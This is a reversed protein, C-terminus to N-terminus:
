SVGVGLVTLLETVSTMFHRLAAAINQWGLHRLVNLVGNRLAALVQPAQGRHIPCADEGLTVDRVYHVKNEITWHERWLQEVRELSARSPDLSTIGYAVEESQQGTKLRRRQTTRQLVWYAGPWNVYDALLASAALNRVELRGHGKQVTRIQRRDEIDRPLPPAQFLIDIAEWLQPQNHKVIMLYDGHQNLIQQALAPHTHLADVTIVVGRLDRGALIQAVVTQERQAPPVRAQALVRGDGHRVLSVLDTRREGHALPGRVTKGDLAQGQVHSGGVATPPVAPGAPLDPLQQSHAAVAAEVQQVDVQLVVRRLTAYSPLRSVSSAWAARLEDGHAQVWDSIESLHRQGAALAASILVLLFDWPYQRGKAARPDAITQLHQYFTTATPPEM